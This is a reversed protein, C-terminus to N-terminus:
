ETQKKNSKVTVLIKIMVKATMVILIMIVIM